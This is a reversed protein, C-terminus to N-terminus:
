KKVYLRGGIKENRPSNANFETNKLFCNGAVGMVFATCNPRGNCAAACADPNDFGAELPNAGPIDNGPSNTNNYLTFNSLGARQAAAVKKREEVRAFARTLAAAKEVGTLPRSLGLCNIMNSNIPEPLRSPFNVPKCGEISTAPDNDIIPAKAPCPSGKPVAIVGMSDAWVAASDIVDSCQSDYPPGCSTTTM